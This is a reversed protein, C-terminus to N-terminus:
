ANVDGEEVLKTIENGADLILKRYALFNNNSEAYLLRAKELLSMVKVLRYPHNLLENMGDLQYMINTFAADIDINKYDTKNENKPDALLLLFFIQKRLGYVSIKVQENTFNGYKHEM